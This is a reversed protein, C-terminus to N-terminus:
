TIITDTTRITAISRSTGSTSDDTTFPLIKTAASSNRVVVRFNITGSYQISVEATAAAAYKDILPVYVDDATNMAIPVANFEIQDTSVQGTIAPSITVQTDSDVSIIYSIGDHGNGNNVVIDGRKAAANFGGGSKVITTSGTGATATFAYNALTFTSSSWSAYRVRYGQYNDSADRIRLVGGSTKGPVDQPIAADVVITADGIAEGGAASFETKNISGGAGTLRFVSVRDHLVSTEAGGVLNTVEITIATPRAKTEGDVTTLQFKNEDATVWESILVGRAGFFTGGAFTGLPSAKKPAFTVAASDIEVTSTTDNDTLTATTAHTVFTGRTNRLLIVKNVTDHSIIVGTAGSTEQTVDDGENIAGSPSGTYKLYVEGGIYMEGPIGDTSSTGTAGGRTIYKLWEYVEDLPNSNCDITIGYYEATSDNDIDYTTNAYAIAPIVGSTFWAALAPGQNVPVGNVTGTGTDDDNNVTETDSFDITPVDGGLLYYHLTPTPNSGSVLTIIGRAGSTGGIIEDGQGWNGSAGSLTISRYGTTNDLDPGCSLPIPNRGGSTTSAAVEYSDYLTNGRRAYVTGYGGDIVSLTATKYDKIPLLMDIHGDTWWDKTSDTISVVRVRGADTNVPGQYVYVHSDTEITGLSYLNAWIQEGTNSVAGSQSATHANCTITQAATTFQDSAGNTNPRIVLYDTAGAEIVELLTGAGTTAGSIDLGVDGAVINNSTVPVIIIGVASTDVHTWGNTRIAGGKLHEMSKYSIYWPDLDGSDIIGITYEVPTQASMPIGDDMQSQEDFFDQLASYLANVTRPPNAGGTWEIQKRRNDDLYYITFDGGLITDSM